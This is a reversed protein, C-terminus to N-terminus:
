THRFTPFQSTRGFQDRVAKVVDRSQAPSDFFGRLTLEKPDAALSGRRPTLAKAKRLADDRENM